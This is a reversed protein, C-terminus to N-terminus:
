GSLFKVKKWSRWGNSQNSVCRLLLGPITESAPLSSVHVVPRHSLLLLAMKNTVALVKDANTVFPIQGDLELAQNHAKKKKVKMCPVLSCIYKIEKVACRELERGRKASQKGRIWGSSENLATKTYVARAVCIFFLSFIYRRECLVVFHSVM